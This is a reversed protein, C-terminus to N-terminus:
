DIVIQNVIRKIAEVLAMEKSMNVPKTSLIGEISFGKFTGDKVSSWVKENDVKFSGFWSGDPVDNYGAMPMIGRKRDVIFSEFMTVGDQYTQQDHEINLASQRNNRFFKQVAKYIEDPSFTLYYEGMQEDNRYIPTDALMLPGSIIKREADQISFKMATMKNRNEWKSYCVAAAQEQEYGEDGVLVGICRSVFEDQSETEGPEVFQQGESFAQFNRQIAPSEVLAVAFIGDTDDDSMIAQYVPINKKM